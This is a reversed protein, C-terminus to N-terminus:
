AKTAVRPLPSFVLRSRPKRRQTPWRSAIPALLTASPFGMNTGDSNSRSHGTARASDGSLSQPRPALLPCREGWKPPIRPWAARPSARGWIAAAARGFDARSPGVPPPRSGEPSKRRLNSAAGGCGCRSRGKPRSPVPSHGGAGLIVGEVEPGPCVPAPRPRGRPMQM